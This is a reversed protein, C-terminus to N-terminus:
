GLEHVAARVTEEKGELTAEGWGHIGADTLVKVFVWNRPAGWTVFTRIERVEMRGRGRRRRRWYPPITGRGYEEFERNKM